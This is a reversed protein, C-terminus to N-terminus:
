LQDAAVPSSEAHPLQGNEAPRTHQPGTALLCGTLILVFAVAATATFPEALLTVGAAV